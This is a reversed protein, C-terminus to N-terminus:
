GKWGLADSDIPQCTHRGGVGWWVVAQPNRVRWSTGVTMVKASRPTMDPERKQRRTM